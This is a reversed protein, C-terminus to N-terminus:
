ELSFLLSTSPDMQAMEFYNRILYFFFGKPPNKKQM